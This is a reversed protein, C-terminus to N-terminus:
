NTYCNCTLGGGGGGGGDVAIIYNYNYMYICRMGVAHLSTVAMSCSVGRELEQRRGQVVAYREWTCTNSQM